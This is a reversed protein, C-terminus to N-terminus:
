MGTNGPLDARRRDSDHHCNGHFAKNNFCPSVDCGKTDSSFGRRTGAAGSLVIIGRRAVLYTVAPTFNEEIWRETMEKIRDLQMQSMGVDSAKGTTLIM